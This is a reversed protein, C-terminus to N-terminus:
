TWYTVHQYIPKQQPFVHVWPKDSMYKFEVCDFPILCITCIGHGLKPDFWMHYNKSSGRIGHPKKHPGCFQFSTFQNANCFMKVYKHLVDYDEQM